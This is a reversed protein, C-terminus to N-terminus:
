GNSLLVRIGLGLRTPKMGSDVGDRELEGWAWFTVRVGKRNVHGYRIPHLRSWQGGQGESGCTRVCMPPQRSSSAAAPGPSSCCYGLGWPSVSHPLHPLSSCWTRLPLPPPWGPPTLCAKKNKNKDLLSVVCFWGHGSGVTHDSAKRSLTLAILTKKQPSQPRESLHLPSAPTQPDAPNMREPLFHKPCLQHLWLSDLFIMFKIKLSFFHLKLKKQHRSINDKKNQKTKEYRGKADTLM